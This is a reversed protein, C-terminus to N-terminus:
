RIGHLRIGIQWCALSLTDAKAAAWLMEGPLVDRMPKIALYQLVVNFACAFLFEVVWATYMEPGFLRHWGFFVAVTPLLFVLWEAVIDGLMCGSGVRLAGNAVMVPSTMQAVSPMTEGRDM